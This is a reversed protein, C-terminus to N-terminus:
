ARVARILAEVHRPDADPTIGHGLNFIHPRGRMEDVIRQAEEEMARGGVVMLMPDLNGQLAIGPLADRAWRLPVQADLGV